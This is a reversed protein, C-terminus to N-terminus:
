TLQDIKNRIGRMNAIFLLLGAFVALAITLLSPFNPISFGQGSLWARLGWQSLILLITAVIPLIIAMRTVMPQWVKALKAKAYGLHHLRQLTTQFRTILLQFNLIFVFIALLLILGGILLVAALLAQILSQLGEGVIRGTSLEYGKKSLFDLLEQDQANDVSLIVRSPATAAQEGYTENAYAM